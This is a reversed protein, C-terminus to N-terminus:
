LMGVISHVIQKSVSYVNFTLPSKLASLINESKSPYGCRHRHLPLYHTENPSLTLCKWAWNFHPQHLQFCGCNCLLQFDKFLRVKQSFNRAVARNSEAAEVASILRSDFHQLLIEWHQWQPRMKLRLRHVGHDEKQGQHLSHTRQKSLM